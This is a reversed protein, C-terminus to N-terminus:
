KRKVISIPGKVIETRKNQSNDMFTVKLSYYYTAEPFNNAGTFESWSREEKKDDASQFVIEGWGNYVILESSLFKSCDKDGFYCEAVVECPDFENNETFLSTGDAFFAKPM